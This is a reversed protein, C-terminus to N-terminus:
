KLRRRVELMNLEPVFILPCEAWAIVKMGSDDDLSIFEPIFDADTADVFIEWSRKSPRYWGKRAAHIFNKYSPDYITVLCCIDRKPLDNPDELLDHWGIVIEHTAM